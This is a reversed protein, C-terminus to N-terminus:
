FIVPHVAADLDLGHRDKWRSRLGNRAIGLAPAAQPLTLMDQRARQRQEPAAFRRALVLEVAAQSIEGRELKERYTALPLYRRARYMQSAVLTADHFTRHQYAHLTHHHVFDKLPGQTPLWHAL